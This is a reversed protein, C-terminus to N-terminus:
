NFDQFYLGVLYFLLLVGVGEINQFFFIMDLVVILFFCCIFQMGEMNFDNENGFIVGLIIKKGNFVLEGECNIEKFEYM